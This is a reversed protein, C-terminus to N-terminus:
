QKMGVIPGIPMALDASNALVVPFGEWIRLDCSRVMDALTLDADQYEEAGFIPFGLAGVRKLLNNNKMLRGM